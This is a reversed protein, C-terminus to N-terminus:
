ASPPQTVGGLLGAKEEHLLDILDVEVIRPYFRKISTAVQGFADLPPPDDIQTLAALSTLHADHQDVRQSLIRHLTLGEAYTEAQRQRYHWFAAGLAALGFAMVALWVLMQRRRSPLPATSPLIM